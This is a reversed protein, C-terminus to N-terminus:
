EPVKPGKPVEKIFTDVLVERLSYKINRPGLLDWPGLAFHSGGKKFLFQGGRQQSNQSRPVEPVQNKFTNVIVERLSYKIKRPGM